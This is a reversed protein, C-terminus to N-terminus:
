PIFSIVWSGQQECTKQKVNCFDKPINNICPDKNENFEETHMLVPVLSGCVFQHAKRYALSKKNKPHETAVARRRAKGKVEPMPESWFLYVFQIFLLLKSNQLFNTM